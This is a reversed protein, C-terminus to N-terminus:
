IVVSSIEASSRGLLSVFLVLGIPPCYRRSELFCLGENYNRPNESERSLV